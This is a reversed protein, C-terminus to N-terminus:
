FSLTLNLGCWLIQDKGLGMYNYKRLTHSPIWTYNVQAGISLNETIAYASSLGITQDTLETGLSEYTIYRSWANGGFGLSAKPTVTLQDGIQFDHALSLEYYFRSPRNDSTDAYGWYVAATPTVFPNEYTAKAYLERDDIGNNNPYTYWIHGFEFGIGALEIEYSLTYDIEQCGSARRSNTTTGRKHTFDLTSWVAASLCGYDETEYSVCVAPQWTANDNCITGRWVYDSLLDMTFEVSLPSEEESVMETEQESTPAPVTEEAFTPVAAAFAFASVGGILKLTNM